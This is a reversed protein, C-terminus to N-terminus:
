VTRMRLIHASSGATAVAKLSGRERLVEAPRGTAGSVAGSGREKKGGNPLSVIDSEGQGPPQAGRPLAGCIAAASAAAFVGWVSDTEVPM